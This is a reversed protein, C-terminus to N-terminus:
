ILLRATVDLISDLSRESAQHHNSNGAAGWTLLKAHEEAIEDHLDENVDEIQSVIWKWFDLRFRRTPPYAPFHPNNVLAAVLSEQARVVAIAGEDAPPLLRPHIGAGYARVLLRPYEDLEELHITM